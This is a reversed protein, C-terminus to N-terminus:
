LMSTTCRKCPGEPTASVGGDCIVGADMRSDPVAATSASTSGPMSEQLFLSLRTHQRAHWHLHTFITRQRKDIYYRNREGFFRDAATKLATELARAEEESLDLTHARWVALPQDCQNCEVITWRGEPDELLWETERRLECLDCHPMRPITRRRLLESEWKLLVEVFGVNPQAWQRRRKVHRMADRLVIGRSAMVYALIISASRSVGATCFVLVSADERERLASAIWDVCEELCGALKFKESPDDDLYDIVKRRAGSILSTMRPMTGNMSLYHTFRKKWSWAAATQPGLHLGPLIEQASRFRGREEESMSAVFDGFTSRRRRERRKEIDEITGGLLEEMVRSNRGKHAWEVLCDLPIDDDAGARDDCEDM